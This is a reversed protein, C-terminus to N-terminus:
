PLHSLSIRYVKAATGHFLAAKESPSAARVIHKLANWIPVFGGSRGDPPYNSEMMCRNAGFAEVCTEVHPRWKAALERYGITDEREEFRFGWFPMGLGGIKCYINPRRAVEVIANRYQRFVEERTEDDKDMAMAHGCHDLVITAQPFADALDTLDHLQHHFMAADFTLGRKVLQAFGHRFGPHKMIGSPPRHTIFRYPAETPDEITVQRVGRFREPALELARDLLEAVPDGFRLDAYGVIAAAVRCEGYVGSACMAGVGNAFEIEGLPRLLEPGDPRAFAQTELYVSAVVRHGARVDELYDDLMYRLPPRDFLHHHSDIIPIEPDLIPEDRGEYLQRHTKSATNTQNM